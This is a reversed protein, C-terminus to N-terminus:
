ITQISRKSRMLYNKNPSEPFDWYKKVPETAYKYYDSVQQATIGYPLFAIEGIVGSFKNPSATYNGIVFPFADYIAAGASVPVTGGQGDNLYSYVQGGTFVGTALSVEDARCAKTCTAIKAAGDWVAFTPKGTTSLYFVFTYLITANRMKVAIVRSGNIVNPRVWALITFEAPKLTASDAISIHLSTAGNFFYGSNGANSAIIPYSPTSNVTVVNNGNGYQDVLGSPTGDLAWYGAGKNFFGKIGRSSDIM